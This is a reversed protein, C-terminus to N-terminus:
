EIIVKRKPRYNKIYDKELFTANTSVFVMNDNPSYFFGYRKGKPYVVFICDELRSEMKDINTKLM